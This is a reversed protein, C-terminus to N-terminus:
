LHHNQALYSFVTGLGRSPSPDVPNPGPPNPQIVSMCLGLGVTQTVFTGLSALVALHEQRQPSPQEWSEHKQIRAGVM